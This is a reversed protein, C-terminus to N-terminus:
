SAHFLVSYTHAGPSATTDVYTNTGYPVNALFVGDRYVVYGATAPYSGAPATWSLTVAGTELNTVASTDIEITAPADCHGQLIKGLVINKTDNTAPYDQSYLVSRDSRHSGPFGATIQAWKDKSIKRTDHFAPCTSSYATRM